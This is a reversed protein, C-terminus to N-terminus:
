LGLQENSSYARYAGYCPAFLWGLVSGIGPLLISAAIFLGMCVFFDKASKLYIAVGLAGFCLGLVFAISPSKPEPLPGLSSVM